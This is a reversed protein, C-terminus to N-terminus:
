GVLQAIIIAIAICLSGVYIAMATNGDAIQQKLDGPTTLDVIKYAFVFAVGAVALWIGTHILEGLVTRGNPTEAGQAFAPQAAAIMIPLLVALRKM